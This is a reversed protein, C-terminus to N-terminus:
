IACSTFNISVHEAHAESEYKHWPNDLVESVSIFNQGVNKQKTGSHIGLKRFLDHFIEGKKGTHSKARQQRAIKKKCTIITEVTEKKTTGLHSSRLIILRETAELQKDTCDASNQYTTQVAESVENRLKLDNDRGNDNRNQRIVKVLGTHPHM